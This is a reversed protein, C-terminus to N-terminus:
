LLRGRVLADCASSLREGAGPHTVYCEQKRANRLPNRVVYEDGQFKGGPLLGQLLQHASRLAVANIGDFDVPHRM